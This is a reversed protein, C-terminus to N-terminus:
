NTICILYSADGGVTKIMQDTPQRKNSARYPNKVADKHLTEYTETTFGNIAGYEKIMTIIHYRWNHLKPLRLQSLSYKKFLRIFM